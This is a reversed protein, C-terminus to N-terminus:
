NCSDGRPLRRKLQYVRLCLAFYYFSTFIGLKLGAVGEKWGGLIMTASLHYVFVPISSLLPRRAIFSYHPTLQAGEPFTDWASRDSLLTRAHITLWRNWKTKVTLLSFNNYGPQHELRAGAYEITGDIRVEEQAVGLYLSSSLRYLVKKLPWHKTTYKTGNWLPWVLAYCDARNSQVLERVAVQAEASLYEDADIQLVWETKVAKLL